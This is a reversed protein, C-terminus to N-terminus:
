GCSNKRRKKNLRKKKSLRVRKRGLVSRNDKLKVVPQEDNELRISQAPNLDKNKIPIYDQKLFPPINKYDRVEGTDINM